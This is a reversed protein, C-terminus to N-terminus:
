QVEVKEIEKKSERELLEDVFQVGADILSRVALLTEKDAQLFHDITSRPVGMDECCRIVRRGFEKFM